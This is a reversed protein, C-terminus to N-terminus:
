GDIFMRSSSASWLMVTVTFKQDRLRSSRGGPPRQAVRPTTNM